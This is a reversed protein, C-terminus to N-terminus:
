SLLETATGSRCCIAAYGPRHTTKAHGTMDVVCLTHTTSRWGRQNEGSFESFFFVCMCGKVDGYEHLESFPLSIPDQMRNATLVQQQAGM